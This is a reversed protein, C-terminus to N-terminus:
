IVTVKDFRNPASSMARTMIKLMNGVVANASSVAGASGVVVMSSIWGAGSGAGSGAGWGIACSGATVGGSGCGAATLMVTDCSLM